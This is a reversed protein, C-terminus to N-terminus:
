LKNNLDNLLRSTTKEEYSLLGALENIKQQMKHVILRVMKEEYVMTCKNSNNYLWKVQRVRSDLIPLIDLNELHSDFEKLTMPKKRM